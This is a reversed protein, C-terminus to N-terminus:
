VGDRSGPRVKEYNWITPRRGKTVQELNLDQCVHNKKLALADKAKKAVYSQQRGHLSKLRDRPNKLTMMATVHVPLTSHDNPTPLNPQTWDDSLGDSWVICLNPFLAKRWM